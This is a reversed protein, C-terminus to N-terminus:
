ASGADGGDALRRPATGFSVGDQQGLVAVLFPAGVLALGLGTMRQLAAGAAVPVAVLLATVVQDVGAM